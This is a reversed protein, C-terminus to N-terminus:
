LGVIGESNKIMTVYNNLPTDEQMRIVREEEM